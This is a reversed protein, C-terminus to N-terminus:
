NGPQACTVSFLLPIPFPPFGDQNRTTHNNSTVITFDWAGPDDAAPVSISADLSTVADNVTVVEHTGEFGGQIAVLGAPCHIRYDALSSHEQFSQTRDFVETLGIGQAGNLGNGGPPGDPGQPGIPGRPGRAGQEGHAGAAGTPGAQGPAGAPGQPGRPGATGAPGVPGRPGAPLSVGTLDRVTLSHDKVKASTVAAARIQSPGVSDPPLTTAAWATGALAIFVTLSSTVNAYTLRKM